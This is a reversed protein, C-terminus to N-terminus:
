LYGHARYWDVADTLAERASRPAYGLERKAKDSSYYMHKAAMRLADVTVAPERSTLRGALEAMWAVPFLPRRPLRIRPGPRGVYGTVTDLIERLTMNEGGLVYREGTVGREFALMHGEAVDDVHVANLGTDLYAPLRGKAADIVIRGTPTPKIDRPGFPASPNVTVVPAGEERVLRMVEEEALFKSKKYHSIMDDLTAVSSEDALTGGYGAKLVAVSSTYVIRSAGAEAAARVLDRSGEVNARYMSAGGDPVWLRYDAAVHFVADCGAVAPRLSAPDALDGEVVEVDMDAINRRDSSPRMLVRVEHGAAAIRRAVASGVFGSTGTVLARM